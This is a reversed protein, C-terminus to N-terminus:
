EGWSSSSLFMGAKGVIDETVDEVEQGGGVLIMVKGQGEGMLMLM